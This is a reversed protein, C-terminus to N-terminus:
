VVHERRGRGGGSRRQARRARHAAHAEIRMVDPEVGVGTGHGRGEDDRRVTGRALQGPECPPPVPPVQNGREFVFRADVVGRELSERPHGAEIHADHRVPVRPHEGLRRVQRHTHQRRVAARDIQVALELLVQPHDPKRRHGHLTVPEHDRDPGPGAREGALAHQQDSVRRPQRVRHRRLPDTQRRLAAAEGCVRDDLALEVRRAHPGAVM